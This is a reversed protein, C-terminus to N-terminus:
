TVAGPKRGKGDGSCGGEDDHEDNEDHEDDKEDEDEDDTVDAGSARLVGGDTGAGNEEDVERKTTM